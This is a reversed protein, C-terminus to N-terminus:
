IISHILKELHPIVGSAYHLHGKQSLHLLDPSELLYSQLQAGSFDEFLSAVDCFDVNQSAAVEQLILNYDKRHDELSRGGPFPTTRLTKHNNIVLIKKAGFHLARQIMEQLNARFAAHSVRPLGEDTEWHNGDNLGFQITVIDARHKQVSEPYRELGQRTTEGSVGQNIFGFEITKSTFAKQIESSVITTWRVKPDIHQGETISDGMFVIKILKHQANINMLSGLRLM